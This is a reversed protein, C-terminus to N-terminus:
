PPRITIDLGARMIFFHQPQCIQHQHILHIRLANKADTGFFIISHCPHLLRNRFNCLAESDSRYCSGVTLDVRVM